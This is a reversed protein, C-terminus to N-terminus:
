DDDFDRPRWGDLYRHTLALVDTLKDDKPGYDDLADIVERLVDEGGYLSVLVDWAIRPKRKVVRTNQTQSRVEVYSESLIHVNLEASDVTPLVAEGDPLTKQAWVLLRLLDSETALQDPAATRVAQVLEAELEEATTESMLKHGVNERHGALSILELRSSLTSIRPLVERVVQEVDDPGLLQRLLRLVVRTVVLRTGMSLLGGPREPLSPLINLLVVTAVPVAEVPYHGEYNELAAIVDETRNTDISRLFADLATEDTLVDVAAEADSFALLGESPTRELYFDSHPQRDIRYDAQWHDIIPRFASPLKCETSGM